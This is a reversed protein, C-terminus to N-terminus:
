NTFIITDGSGDPAPIGNFNHEISEIPLTAGAKIAGTRIQDLMYQSLGNVKNQILYDNDGVKPTLKNVQKTQQATLSAGSAWQQVTLNIAEIYQRNKIAQESALKAPVTNGIGLGKFKGTPNDKALKDVAILVGLANGEKETLKAKNAKFFNTLDTVTDGTLPVNVGGQAELNDLRMDNYTKATSANSARISAEKARIDLDFMKAQQAEAEKAKLALTELANASGFTKNILNAYYPSTLAATQLAQFGGPQSAMWQMQQVANQQMQNRYNLMQFGVNLQQSLKQEAMQRDQTTLQMMKDLRNSINNRTELLNNYNKILSKNRAITLAQVQSDTAFGGAKTIENRLDDETGEIVNRANMLETDIAELGSEKELRQYEEVLSEKQKEPSLFETMTDMLGTFFKDEQLSADVVSTDPEAAPLTGQITSAAQGMSGPAPAGTGQAQTLGQRYKEGVANLQGTKQDYYQTGVIKSDIATPPAIVPQVTGPLGATANVTQPSPQATSVPTTPQAGKLTGTPDYNASDYLEDNLGKKGDTRRTNSAQQAKGADTLQGNKELVIGKTM